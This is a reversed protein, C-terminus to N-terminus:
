AVKFPAHGIWSAGEGGMQTNTETNRGMWAVMFHCGIGAIARSGDPVKTSTNHPCGSCFHPRRAANGSVQAIAEDKRTLYALRSDISSSPFFRAFRKGLAAAVVGTNLEGSSPLLWDGSEDRKGVITPRETSDNDFLLEKLQSEVVGRKEEVVLIEDLGDAFARAGVPELPWSMGVKYLRIGVESARGPPLGLDDLAQM